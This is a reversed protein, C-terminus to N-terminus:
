PFRFIRWSFPKAEESQLFVSEEEFTSNFAFVFRGYNSYVQIIYPLIVGTSFIQLPNGMQEMYSISEYDTLNLKVVIENTGTHYIIAGFHDVSAVLFQSNPIAKVTKVRFADWGIKSASNYRLIRM